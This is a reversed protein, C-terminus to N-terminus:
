TVPNCCHSSALALHHAGLHAVTPFTSIASVSALLAPQAEPVGLATFNDADLAHTACEAAAIEQHLDQRTMFADNDQNVGQM